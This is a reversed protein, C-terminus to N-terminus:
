QQKSKSNTLVLSSGRVSAIFLTGDRPTDPSELAADWEAGRYFVRALGNDSWKIVHVPQGIDLSASSIEKVQASKWRQLVISGAIITMTCLSLQWVISAGMLAVFGGAAMAVALMLLYFTGTAMELGVLLVASLFWYVYIEM